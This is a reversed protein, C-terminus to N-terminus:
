FPVETSEADLRAQKIAALKNHRALYAAPPRLECFDVGNFRGSETAAEVAEITDFKAECWFRIVSPTVCDGECLFGCWIEFLGSKSATSM